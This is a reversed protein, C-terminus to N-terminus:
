RRSLGDRWADSWRIVPEAASSHCITAAGTGCNVERSNVRVSKSTDDPEDRLARRAVESSSLGERLMLM